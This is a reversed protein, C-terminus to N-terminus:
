EMKEESSTRRMWLLFVSTKSMRGRSGVALCSTGNIRPASLSTEKVWCNWIQAQKARWCCWRRTWFTKSSKTGTSLCRVPSLLSLPNSVVRAKSNHLTSQGEFLFLKTRRGLECFYSKGIEISIWGKASVFLLHCDFCTKGRGGVHVQVVSIYKNIRTVHCTSRSSAM